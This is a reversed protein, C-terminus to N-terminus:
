LIEIEPQLRVGFRREVEAQVEAILARYDAATGGENIFFNAHVESVMVGGIRKGKLGAAEILRGAYDGPPNAFVSGLSRGTPQSRRRRLLYEQARAELLHPAAPTLQLRAALLVWQGASRGKLRSYRYAYDFWAPGVELLTGDSALLQAQLLRSGIEEGGAGANNVLAGGLTGPLGVAWTLGDWGRQIAERALAIMMVGSEASVTGQEADWRVEATRNLVVLGRLGEDPILCNSLGGFVRWPVGLAQAQQTVAILESRTRALLLLDAPGGLGVWSYQALPVNRQLTPFARALEDWRQVAEPTQDM